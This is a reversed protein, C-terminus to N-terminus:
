LGSVHQREHPYLAAPRRGPHEDDPCRRRTPAAPDSAPLDAGEHRVVRLCEIRPLRLQASRRPRPFLGLVRGRRHPLGHAPLLARRQTRAGSPSCGCRGSTPHACPDAADAVVVGDAKDTLTIGQGKGPQFDFSGLSQWNGGNIKQNVPASSGGANSNVQYSANTARNPGASWRAFVEYRGAQGSPFPWTVSSSGDGPTRFFYDAGFFGATTTSTTWKGKLMVAADSNDVILEAALSQTALPLTSVLLALAVSARRGYLTLFRWFM